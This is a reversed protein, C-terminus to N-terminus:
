GVLAVGMGVYKRIMLGLSMRGSGPNARKTIGDYEGLGKARRVASEIAEQDNRRDAPSLLNVPAKKGQRQLTCAQTFLNRTLDGIQDISLGHLAAAVEDGNHHVRPAKPAKPAKAVPAAAELIAASEALVQLVVADEPAVTVTEAVMVPAVPADVRIVDLKALKPMEAVPAVEVPAEVQAVPAVEVAVQAFAEQAVVTGDQAVLVKTQGEALGISRFLKMAADVRQRTESTETGGARKVTITYLAM